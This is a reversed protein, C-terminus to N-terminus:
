GVAKRAPRRKREQTRKKQAQFLDYDAQLRVWMEPTTGFFEALDLAFDATIGRKGNIIENIKGPKCGLAAALSSQNLDERDRLYIEDLIEGPHLMHETPLSIAM